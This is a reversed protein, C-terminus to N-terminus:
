WLKTFYNCQLGECLTVFIPLGLASNRRVVTDHENQMNRSWWIELFKVSTEYRLISVSYVSGTSSMCLALADFHKVSQLYEEATCNLTLVLFLVHAPIACDTYRIAVPPVTRPDFGPSPSIKRVRGFHGQPGGLRRTKGPPLAAPAHRQGDGGDLASALSPTSSCWKQAKTAQELTFKVCFLM